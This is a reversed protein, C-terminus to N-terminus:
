FMYCRIKFIFANKLLFKEGRTFHRKWSQSQSIYGGKHWGKFTYSNDLYFYERARFITVIIESNEFLNPKRRREFLDQPARSDCTFM